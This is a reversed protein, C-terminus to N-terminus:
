KQTEQGLEEVSLVHWCVDGVEVDEEILNIRVPLVNSLGLAVIETSDESGDLDDAILILGTANTPIEYISACTTIVNPKLAFPGLIGGTCRENEAIFEFRGREHERGQSDRLTAGSFDM